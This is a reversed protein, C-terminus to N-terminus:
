AQSLLNSNSSSNPKAKQEAPHAPKNRPTFDRLLLNAPNAKAATTLVHDCLRITREIWSPEALPHHSM